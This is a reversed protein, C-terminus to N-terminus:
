TAAEEAHEAAWARLDGWGAPEGGGGEPPGHVWELWYMGQASLFTSAMKLHKLDVGAKAEAYNEAAAMLDAPDAHYPADNVRIKGDVWRRWLAYTAKKDDDRRPYARWWREFEDPYQIRPPPDHVEIKAQAPEDGGVDEGDPPSEEPACARSPATTATVTASVTPSISVPPSGNGSGESSGNGSGNPSGNPLGNPWRNSIAKELHESHQKAAEALAALLPTAPLEELQKVAAKAVNENAPADYALANCVFVVKAAADYRMFDDAVLEAMAEALEGPEWRLDECAYSKPLWYLGVINRHPCTLLYMALLTARQSWEATDAHRWLKPTVRFYRAESAM